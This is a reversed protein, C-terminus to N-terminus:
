PKFLLVAFKRDIVLISDDELELVGIIDSEVVNTRM